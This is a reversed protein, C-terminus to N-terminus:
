VAKARLAMFLPIEADARRTAKDDEERFTAIEELRDIMLGRRALANIYESLPRHFSITVGRKGRQHQKMPVSLPSLYHDVRRYRLKRQDDHGWGSQRPVRFCPHRMLIVARGDDRLAWAAAAIVQDLPNMDEISLLFVAADFSHAEVQHLRQLHRVDGCLFNGQRKHRRKAIAVMKRSIDIGTYHADCDAIYQALVGQGCGLDLVHEGPQAQLLDLVAPIALQQHHQSGHQGVWGDYWDAVPEWGSPSRYQHKRAM